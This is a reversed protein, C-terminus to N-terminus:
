RKHLESWEKRARSELRWLGLWRRDEANEWLQAEARRWATMDVREEDGPARARRARGPQM